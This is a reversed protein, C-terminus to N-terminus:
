RYLVECNVGRAMYRENQGNPIVRAGGDFSCSFDRYYDPRTAYVQNQLEALDNQLEATFVNDEVANQRSRTTLTNECAVKNEEVLSCRASAGLRTARFDASVQELRDQFQFNGQALPGDCYYDAIPYVQNNQYDTFHIKGIRCNVFQTNNVNSRDRLQQIIENLGQDFGTWAQVVDPNNALPGTLYGRCSFRSNLAIAALSCDALYGLRTNRFERQIVVTSNTSLNAIIPVNTSPNDLSDVIAIQNDLYRNYGAALEADNRLRAILNDFGEIDSNHAFYLIDRLTDTQEAYLYNFFLAAYRYFKFDGYTASLIQDPTMRQAQDDSIQEVLIKRVKIGQPNSWTLFEAMGEDFWVMRNNDYISANGWLGDILYRGIIYHSYEHRLLEELTYISEQPTRQYTYLTGDEEIYIGGNNTPLEYLFSQYQEYERRTGYIIMTMQGNPDNLIPTITESIRNFQAQVEKLAHYLPQITDLNLFTRITMAGDDFAYTNPFLMQELEDAIDSRCIREDPRSTQCDNFEDLASVAWLYPESLRPHTDLANTIAQVIEDDMEPNVGILVGLAWIANNVVYIYDDDFNTNTAIYEILSILEADIRGGYENVLPRQFSYLVDYVARMQYYDSQRAPEDRFIRLMTKFADIYYGGLGAADVTIAWESFIDAAERNFDFLHNNAALADFANLTEEGVLNNFDLDDHYFHHYYGIHTFVLLSYIDQQNNGLYAPALTEIENLITVMNDSSFVTRVADSYTWLFRLCEYDSEKVYEILDDGTLNQIAQINCPHPNDNVNDANEEDDPGLPGFVKKKSNNKGHNVSNSFQAADGSHLSREIIKKTDNQNLFDLKRELPKEIKGILDKAQQYDGKDFATRAKDILLNSENAIFNLSTINEKSEEETFGDDLVNKEKATKVVNNRMAVVRSIEKNAEEKSVAEKLQKSGLHNIQSKIFLVIAILILGLTFITLIHKKQM